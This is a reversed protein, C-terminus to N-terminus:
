MDRAFCVELRFRRILATGTKPAAPNDNVSALPADRAFGVGDTSVIVRWGLSLRSITRWSSSIKSRLKPVNWTKSPSLTPGKRGPLRSM